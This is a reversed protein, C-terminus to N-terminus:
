SNSLEDRIHLVRAAQVRTAKVAPGKCSNLIRFQIGAMDIGKALIGGMADIEQVLRHVLTPFVIRNLLSQSLGHCTM